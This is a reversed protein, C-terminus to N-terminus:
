EFLDLLDEDSMVGLNFEKDGANKMYILYAQLLIASEVSMNYGVNFRGKNLQFRGSTSGDEYIQFLLETSTNGTERVECQGVPICTAPKTLRRNVGNEQAVETWEYIKGLGEVLNDIDSSSISLRDRVRDYTSTPDIFDFQYNLYGEDSIRPIVIMEGIENTGPVYFPVRPFTDSARFASVALNANTPRIPTSFKSTLSASLADRQARLTTIKGDIISLTQEKITNPQELITERIAMYMFISSQIEDVYIQAEAVNSANQWREYTAELTATLAVSNDSVEPASNATLEHSPSNNESNENQNEQSITEVVTSVTVELQTSREDESLIKALTLNVTEETDVAYGERTAFGVIASRTGRGFIGDITSRYFGEARLRDQIRVRDIHDLNNFITRIPDVNQATSPERVTNQNNTNAVTTPAPGGSMRDFQFTRTPHYRSSRSILRLSGDIDGSIRYSSYEQSHPDSQRVNLSVTGDDAVNGSITGNHYLKCFAHTNGGGNNFIAGTVNGNNVTIQINIPLTSPCVSGSGMRFSFAANYRGDWQNAYLPIGFFILPIFLRIFVASRM